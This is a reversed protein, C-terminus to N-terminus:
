ECERIVECKNRLKHQKACKDNFAYYNGFSRTINGTYYCVHYLYQNEKGLIFYYTDDYGLAKMAEIETGDAMVKILRPSWIFYYTDDYCLAKRAEIETGDEM